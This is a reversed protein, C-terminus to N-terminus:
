LLLVICQVIMYLQFPLFLHVSGSCLCKDARPRWWWVHVHILTLTYLTREDLFRYLTVLCWSKLIHYACLTESHTHLPSSTTSVAPAQPAGSLRSHDEPSAPTRSAAEVQPRGSHGSMKARVVDREVTRDMAPLDAVHATPASVPSAGSVQPEVVATPKQAQGTSNVVEARPGDVGAQVVRADAVRAVPGSTKEPTSSEPVVLVESSLGLSSIPQANSIRGGGQDQVAHDPRPISLRVSPAVERKLAVPISGEQVTRQSVMELEPLPNSVSHVAAAPRSSREIPSAEVGSFPEAGTDMSSSVEELHGEGASHADSGAQDQAGAPEGVDLSEGASSGSDETSVSTESGELEAGNSGALLFERAADAPRSPSPRSPLASPPPSAPM